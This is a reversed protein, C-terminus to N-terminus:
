TLSSSDSWQENSGSGNSQPDGARKQFSAFSDMNHRPGGEGVCQSAPTQASGAHQPVQRDGSRLQGDEIGQGVVMAGHVVVDEYARLGVIGLGDGELQGLTRPQELLVGDQDAEEVPKSRVVKKHARKGLLAYESRAHSCTKTQATRPGDLNSDMGRVHEHAVGKGATRLARFGQAFRQRPAINGGAGARVDRSGEPRLESIVTGDVGQAGKVLAGDALKYAVRIGSHLHLMDHPFREFDDRCRARSGIPRANVVIQFVEEFTQNGGGCTMLRGHELVEPPPFARLDAEQIAGDHPQPPFVAYRRGDVGRDCVFDLAEFCVGTPM